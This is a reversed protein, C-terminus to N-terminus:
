QIMAHEFGYSELATKFFNNGAIKTLFAKKLEEVENESLNSLSEEVLGHLYVQFYKEQEAQSNEQNKSAVRKEKKSEEEKILDSYYDKELAKM